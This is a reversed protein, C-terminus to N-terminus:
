NLNEDILTQWEEPDRSGIIPDCILNGESDVVITTPVGVLDLNNLLEENAILNPYTVKTENVIDKAEAILEADYSGDEATIDTLMGILAVGKDKNDQYIEELGPMEEICPTCYTAWCNIITIKNSSIIKGLDTNKEDLDDYKGEAILKIDYNQRFQSEYTLSDDEVAEADETADEAIDEEENEQTEAVTETSETENTNKGCALFMSACLAGVLALSIYKKKM